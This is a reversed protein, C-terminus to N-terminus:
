AMVTQDYPSFWSVLIVVDAKHHLIIDSRCIAEETRTSAWPEMLGTQTM